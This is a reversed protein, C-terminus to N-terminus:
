YVGTLLGRYNSSRYNSRRYNSGSYNSSRYNGYTRLLQFEETLSRMTRDTDRKAIEIKGALLMRLNLKNKTATFQRM